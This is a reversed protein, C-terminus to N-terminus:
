TTLVAPNLGNIDVSSLIWMYPNSTSTSYVIRGSISAGQFYAAQGYELAVLHETAAGDTSLSRLEVTEGYYIGGIVANQYTRSFVMWDDNVLGACQDDYNAVSPRLATLGTGDAGVIYTDGGAETEGNVTLHYRNTFIIRSVSGHTHACFKNSGSYSP